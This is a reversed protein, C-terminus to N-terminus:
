AAADASFWEALSLWMDPHKPHLKRSARVLRLALAYSPRAHGGGLQWRLHSVTTGALRAM